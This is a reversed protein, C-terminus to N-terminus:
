ALPTVDKPAQGADLEEQLVQIAGSIRLLTARVNAAQGELDELTRKGKEYEARLEELRQRLRTEMDSM